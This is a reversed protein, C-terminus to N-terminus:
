SVWSGNDLKAQVTETETVLEYLNSGDIQSYSVNSKSGKCNPSLHNATGNAISWSFQHSQMDCSGQAAQATSLSVGAKKNTSSNTRQYVNHAGFWFFHEYLGVSSGGGTVVGNGTYYGM